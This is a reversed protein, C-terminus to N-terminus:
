ERISVLEGSEFELYVLQNEGRLYIWTETGAPAGPTDVQRYPTGWSIVVQPQTMGIRVKREIMLTRLDAPIEAWRELQEETLLLHPKLGQGAPIICELGDRGLEARAWVGELSEFRVLEHILIREGAPISRITEFAEAPAAGPLRFGGLGPPRIEPFCVERTGRKREPYHVAYGPRVVHVTSGRYEGYFQSGVAPVSTAACGTGLVMTGLLLALAAFRTPAAIM